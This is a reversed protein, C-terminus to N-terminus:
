RGKYRKIPEEDPPLIGHFGRHLNTAMKLVLGAIRHASEVTEHLLQKVRVSTDGSDAIYKEDAEGGKHEYVHRRHFMLKAFEIDDVTMGDLIDIDLIEKLDAAVLGLNQFRRNELRNRRAPTMSVHKVLQAVSVGVFSDFESVADKVCAEHPGGSNIRTRLAPITKDSLEQLDNRTGCASCYGFRGLIDNFAGCAKCTFKNQQSEEAYYFAPKETDKGVADAVADMDVVHDGDTDSNLAEAMKACFQAVYSVQGPTLFDLLRAHLGCYPCFRAHVEGRWYGNCAPCQRGFLGESDSGILVLYCGGPVPPTKMPSGMGGLEAQCFVIGQPLAYVGFMAAAVPRCHQWTLQYGRRGQEDTGVRITVQGGSHGVAQFDTRDSM